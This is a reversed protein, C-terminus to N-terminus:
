LPRGELLALYIVKGGEDNLDKISPTRRLQPGTEWAWTQTDMCRRRGVSAAAWTQTDMCRRRGM